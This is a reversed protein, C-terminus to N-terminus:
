NKIKKQYVPIKFGFHFDMAKSEKAFANSLASGSGIFFFGTRLGAGMQTGSYQMFSIPVYFSLWKSEFRPTINFYNEITNQNLDKSNVSSFNGNLNLYFKKYMNWDVDAHIATPLKSKVKGNLLPEYYVDTLFTDFNSANNFDDETFSQNLNYKKQIGEDYQISGLDTLSLGFRLKYKNLEKFNSVEKKTTDFDPRWEYVLGLDLGFGKSAADIVVNPNVEFDQSTGYTATGTSTFEVNDYKLSIGDGKFNANVFGQLYKATLGAKLFHQGKQYLVTAYSLGFEGWSNGTFNPNGLKFDFNEINNEKSLENILEGNVGVLNIFARARTYVAFSHKPTLNFMFAPGMVDFNSIINNSETFSKKAQTDFDYGSKFADSFSVAYMDNGIATGFSFLNIDTKFRSDVISAPNFLVGQVGAYNDQYYGLYSQANASIFGTVVLLILGLKKM